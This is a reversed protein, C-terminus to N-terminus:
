KILSVVRAERRTLAGQPVDICLHTFRLRKTVPTANGTAHSATKGRIKHVSRDHIQILESFADVSHQFKRRKATYYTPCLKKPEIAIVKIDM